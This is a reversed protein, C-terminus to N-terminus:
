SNITYFVICMEDKQIVANKFVAKGDKHKKFFERLSNYIDTVVTDKTYTKYEMEYCTNDVHLLNIKREETNLNFARVNALDEDTMSPDGTVLM